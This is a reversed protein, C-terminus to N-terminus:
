ELEGGAIQPDTGVILVFALALFLGGLLSDIWCGFLILLITGELGLRNVKKM